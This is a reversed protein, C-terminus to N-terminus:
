KKITWKWIRTLSHRAALRRNLIWTNTTWSGTSSWCIQGRHWKELVIQFGFLKSLVLLSLKKVKGNGTRRLPTVPWYGRFSGTDTVAKHGSSGRPTKRQFTSSLFHHQPSQPPSPWLSRLPVSRPCHPSLSKTAHHFSISSFARLVFLATQDSHVRYLPSSKFVKMWHSINQSLLSIFLCKTHSSAAAVPAWCHQVHHSVASNPGPAQTRPLSRSARPSTPGRGKEGM